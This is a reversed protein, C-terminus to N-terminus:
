AKKDAKFIDPYDRQVWLPVSYAEGSSRCLVEVLGHQKLFDLVGLEDFKKREANLASLSGDSQLEEAVYEKIQFPHPRYYHPPENNNEWIKRLAIEAYRALEKDQTLDSLTKTM